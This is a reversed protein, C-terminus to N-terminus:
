KGISEILDWKRSGPPAFPLALEEVFRDGKKVNCLAHTWFVNSLVDGPCGEKSLPWLHDAAPSDDRGWPLSTDVETKCLHCVTGHADTIDQHTYPEHPLSNRLSRRKRSYGEWKDYNKRYYEKTYEHISDRNEERRKASQEKAGKACEECPDQGAYRHARYGSRTGRRGEPNKATPRECVLPYQKEIAERKAQKELRNKEASDRHRAERCEECPTEKAKMHCHYGAVSGRRGEPYKQTPVDCKREYKARIEREKAEVDVPVYTVRFYKNM